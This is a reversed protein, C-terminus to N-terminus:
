PTQADGRTVLVKLLPHQPSISRAAAILTSALDSRGIKQLGFALHLTAYAETAALNHPPELVASDGSFEELQRRLLQAFWNPLRWMPRLNAGQEAATVAGRFDGIWLNYLSLYLYTWTEKPDGELAARLERLVDAKRDGGLLEFALERHLLPDEPHADLADRLLKRAEHANQYRVTAVLGAVAEENTPELQFAKRFSVIAADLRDRQLQVDGLLILREPKAEARVASAYWHEAEDLQGLEDCLEGLGTQAQAYVPNVALAREFAARAAAYQQTRLYCDGLWTILRENNRREVLQELLHITAAVDGREEAALAQEALDGDDNLEM